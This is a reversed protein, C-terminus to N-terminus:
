RATPKTAGIHSGAETALRAAADPNSRYVQAQQTLSWHTASWPNPGSIQHEQDQADKFLHSAVKEQSKIWATPTLAKGDVDRDDAGDRQRVLAGTSDVRWEGSQIARYVLDEVSAEDRVRGSLAAAARIRSEVTAREAARNAQSAEIKLRENESKLTKVQDELEAIRDM